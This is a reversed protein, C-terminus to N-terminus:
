KLLFEEYEQVLKKYYSRGIEFVEHDKTILKTKNFTDIYNCNIVVNRNIQVFDECGTEKIKEVFSKISSNISIQCNEQIILEKGISLLYKVDILHVLKLRGNIDLLLRKSNRDIYKKLCDFVMLSDSDIKSKRIFHFLRVSMAQYVLEERSSVFIIQTKESLSKIYNALEIGNKSKLDIDIFCIDIDNTTAHQFDHTVITIEINQYYKSFYQIFRKEFNQAFEYDDDIIQVKMSIIYFLSSSKNRCEGRM